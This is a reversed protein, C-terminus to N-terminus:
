FVLSLGHIRLTSIVFDIEKDFMCIHYTLLMILEM